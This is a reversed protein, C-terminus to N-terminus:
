REPEYEYERSDEEVADCLRDYLSDDEPLLATIDLGDLKAALVEVEAPDGPYGPDGNRLYMVDPTAPSHIVVFNVDREGLIGLDLTLTISQTNPKRM